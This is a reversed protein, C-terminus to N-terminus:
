SVNKPIKGAKVWEPTVEILVRTPVETLVYQTVKNREKEDNIYKLFIKKLISTFEPYEQKTHIKATGGLGIYPIAGESYDPFQQPDVISVGIKTYGKEIAKNKTSYDESQFYFKGNAFIGWVPCMHPIKNTPSTFAITIVHDRQNIYAIIEDDSVDPKNFSFKNSLKEV